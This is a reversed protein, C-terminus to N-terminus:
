AGTTESFLIMLWLVEEDVDGVRHSGITEGDSGVGKANIRKEHCWLRWMDLRIKLERTKILPHLFRPFSNESVKVEMFFFFSDFRKM